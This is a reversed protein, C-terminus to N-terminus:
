ELPARFMAVAHRLVCSGSWLANPLVVYLVFLSNPGADSSLPMHFLAVWMWGWCLSVVASLMAGALGYVTLCFQLAVCVSATLSFLPNYAFLLCVSVENWLALVMVHSRARLALWVMAVTAVTWQLARKVDDAPDLAQDLKCFTAVSKIVCDDSALSVLLLVISATAESAAVCGVISRAQQTGVTDCTRSFFVRLHEKYLTSALAGMILFVVVQATEFDVFTRQSTHAYIPFSHHLREDLTNVGRVLSEITAGLAYQADPHTAPFVDSDTFLVAAGQRRRSPSSAFVLTHIGRRRLGGGGDQPDGQVTASTLLVAVYHAFRQSLHHPLDRAGGSVIFVKMAAVADVCVQVFRSITLVFLEYRTTPIPQRNSSSLQLRAVIDRAVPPAQCLLDVSLKAAHATNMVLNVVDLNPQLSDSGFTNLCLRFGSEDDNSAGIRAAEETDVALAIPEMRGSRQPVKGAIYSVNVVITVEADSPVAAFAASSNGLVSRLGAALQVERPRDDFLVIKVDRDLFDRRVIRRMVAAVVRTSLSFARNVVICLTYGGKSRRGELYVTGDDKHAVPAAGETRTALSSAFFTLAVDDHFDSPLLQSASLSSRLNSESIYITREDVLPLAFLLAAAALILPVAVRPAAFALM